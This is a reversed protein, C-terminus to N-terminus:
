KTTRLPSFRQRPRGREQNFRDAAGTGEGVHIGRQGLRAVRDPRADTLVMEGMQTRHGLPQGNLFRRKAVQADIVTVLGDGSV